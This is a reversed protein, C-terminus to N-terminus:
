RVGDDFLVSIAEPRRPDRRSAVQVPPWTWQLDAGSGRAFSMTGRTGAVKVSTLAEAVRRRDPGGVRAAEAVVQVSDYGEFAVFSAPEGLNGALREAVRTGLPGLRAPLYRLFPVDAGDEGLLAWWQPSEARGAPDGIRLGALRPDARVAKVLSVAPEPYGVLLLLADVDGAAVLADTLSTGNLSAYEFETVRAGREPLFTRLLRAGASWYRDPEIVLAVHRHRASVLYDAYVSWCYSQAPAVRAVLDTPSEVVADLVASSCVFPLRAKVAEGAAAHAVVSHYEGVVAVADRAAFERVADVARGPAGATDRLLLEIPRGGIGGAANIEDVALEIGAGLHRGAEFFGPRTLPALAGLRIPQKVPATSTTQITM